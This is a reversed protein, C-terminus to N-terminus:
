AYDEAIEHQCSRIVDLADSVDWDPYDDRSLYAAASELIGYGEDKDVHDIIQDEGYHGTIYNDLDQRMRSDM